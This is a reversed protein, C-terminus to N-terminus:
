PQPDYAQQSLVSLSLSRKQPSQFFVLCVNTCLATFVDGPPQGSFREATALSADGGVAKLPWRSSPALNQVVVDSFM